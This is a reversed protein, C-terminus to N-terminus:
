ELFWNSSNTFSKQEHLRSRQADPLDQRAGMAHVWRLHQERGPGLVSTQHASVTFGTRRRLGDGDCPSGQDSRSQGLTHKIKACARPGTWPRAHRTSRRRVAARRRRRPSRRRHSRAGAQPQPLPARRYGPTPTGNAPRRRSGPTHGPEMAVKRSGMANSENSPLLSLVAGVVVGNGAWTGCLNNQQPLLGNTSQTRVHAHGTWTRAASEMTCARFEVRNAFPESGATCRAMTCGRACRDDEHMGHRHWCSAGARLCLRACRQAEAQRASCAIGARARHPVRDLQCPGAGATISRIKVAGRQAWVVARWAM